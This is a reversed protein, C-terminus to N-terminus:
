PAAESLGHGTQYLKSIGVRHRYAKRIKNLCEKCKAM